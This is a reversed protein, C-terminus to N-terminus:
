PACGLGGRADSRLIPEGEFRNAWASLRAGIALRSSWNRELDLPQQCRKRRRMANSYAVPAPILFICAFLLVNTQFTHAMATLM